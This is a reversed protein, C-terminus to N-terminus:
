TGPIIGIARSAVVIITVLSTLSQLVMFAKARSTLPIADTPGFTMSTTFGIFLYDMFSPQWQPAVMSAATYAPFDFDPYGPESSLREDPGGRDIAWYLLSFALTNASWIALSTLVLTTPPIHAPRFLVENVVDVLNVVNLVLVIVIWTITAGYELSAIQRNRTFRAAVILLALLVGTLLSVWHSVIMYRDGLEYDLLVLALAALAAGLRSARRPQTKM